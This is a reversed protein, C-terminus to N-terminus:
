PQEKNKSKTLKGVAWSGIKDDGHMGCKLAALAPSNAISTDRHKATNHKNYNSSAYKSDSGLLCQQFNAEGLANICKLCIHSHLAGKCTRAPCTVNLDERCLHAYTLM